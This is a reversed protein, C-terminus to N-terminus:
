HGDHAKGDFWSRLLPWNARHAIVLLIHIALIIGFALASIDHIKTAVRLLQFPIHGYYPILKIIGSIFILGGSIIFALFSSKQSSLYKGTENVKLRFLYKGITGHVIDKVTPFLTQFKKSIFFDALFYAGFLLTFFLGLFHVKIGAIGGRNYIQLGSFILIFIGIATGWHEMVSDLSHRAAPRNVNRSKPSNKIIAGIIGAVTGAVFTWILIWRAARFLTGSFNNIWLISVISVFVILGALSLLRKLMNGELLIM